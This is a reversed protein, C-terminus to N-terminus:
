INLAYAISDFGVCQISDRQDITVLYDVCHLYMVYAEFQYLNENPRVFRGLAEPFMVVLFRNDTQLQQKLRQGTM